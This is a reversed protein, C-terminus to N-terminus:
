LPLVFDAVDVVRVKSLFTENLEPEVYSSLVRTVAGAAKLAESSLM